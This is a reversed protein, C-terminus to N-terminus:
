HHTIMMVKQMKSRKERPLDVRVNDGRVEYNNKSM